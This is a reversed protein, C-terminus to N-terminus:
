RQEKRVSPHWRLLYKELQSTTQNVLIGLVGVVLVLAYTQAIAGSAQSIGIDRGLGPVGIVLEATLEIILAVWAALRFGTVIYPLATPWLVQRITTWASFRYSRATDRVVPEVDVLGYIVQIVVQFFAAYVVLVLASQPQNGFLLVVLPILAVSPIPRLFEITSTLYERLVPVSGLVGGVLIGLALAVALGSLWGTMTQSLSTWFASQGLLGALTMVVESFPPLSRPDVIGFRPMAEWVLIGTVLGGVGLAGKQARTVNRRREGRVRAGTRRRGPAASVQPSSISLAAM